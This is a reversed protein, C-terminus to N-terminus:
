FRCGSLFQQTMVFFMGQLTTAKLQFIELREGSLSYLIVLNLTALGNWHGCLMRLQLHHDMMGPLVM